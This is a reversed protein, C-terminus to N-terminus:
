VLPLEVFFTTGKGHESNFWIKGGNAIVIQKSISLGLGFSTEGTTGARGVGSYAVFIKPKIDEPIGIGQDSVSIIYTTATIESNIRIVTNANSFKIANSLLNNIVRWIKQQNIPLVRSTANLQIYQNKAKAAVEAIQVCSKLMPLIDIKSRVLTEPKNNLLLLDEIFVLANDGSKEVLDILENLETKSLGDDYKILRVLSMIGAIPSRLDHAVTKLIRNNDDYSQQLSLLSDSLQANAIQNNRNLRTLELNQNSTIAQNRKIIFVILLMMFLFGIAVYLLLSRTKSQQKLLSMQHIKEMDDYEQINNPEHKTETEPINDISDNLNYYLKLFKNATKYDGIKDYYKEKLRALRKQAVLGGYQPIGKEIENISTNFSAIKNELLYVEALKIKSLLADYPEFNIKDNIKISESLLNEAENLKGLKLLTGGLNGLIVGRTRENYKTSGYKKLSLKNIELANNYYLVASDFLNLKECLIGINDYNVQLQAYRDLTDIEPCALLIEVGKKWYYLADAGRRQQWLLDGLNNYYTNFACPNDLSDLMKKIVYYSSYAQKYNGKEAAVKGRLINYEIKHEIIPNESNIVYPALSDLYATTKKNDRFMNYSLVAMYTYKKSLFKENGKFTFNTLSDLFGYAIDFDGANFISDCTKFVSVIQTNLDRNDTKETLKNEGCGILVLAVFFVAYQLYNCFINQTLKSKM